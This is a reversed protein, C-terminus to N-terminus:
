AKTGSGQSRTGVVSPLTALTLAWLALIGRCITLPTPYPLEIENFVKLGDPPRMPAFETNMLMPVVFLLLLVTFSGVVDIMLKQSRERADRIRLARSYVYIITGIVGAIFFAVQILTNGGNEILSNLPDSTFAVFKQAFWPGLITPGSSGLSVGEERRYFALYALFALLFLGGVILAFPVWWALPFFCYAVFLLGPIGAFLILPRYESISLSRM